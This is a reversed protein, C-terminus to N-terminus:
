AKDDNKPWRRHLWLWQSPHDAIWQELLKQADKVIAQAERPRGDQDHIPLPPYFVLRFHAGSDRIIQGPIVPCKFKLGLDAFAPSTKADYGFFPVSVGQRYKQDFLIAVHEGDKVAKVLERTGRSSKPYANMQGSVSRFKKIARDIYPNNPARYVPSVKIDMQKLLSIGTAEWNAIHGSIFIISACEKKYKEIDDTNVLLVRERGIQELHPYEAFVRGLNDWMDRIIARREKRNLDPFARGLHFHARKTIPLFPGISRGTFGGLGSAWDLPLCRFIIMFLSFITYEFIYRVKKM